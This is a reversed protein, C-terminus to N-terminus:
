NNLDFRILIPSFSRSKKIVFASFNYKYIQKRGVKFNRLIRKKNNENNNNNNNNNDNNNNESPDISFRNFKSDLM